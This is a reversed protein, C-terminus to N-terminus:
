WWTLAPFVRYNTQVAVQRLFYSIGSNEVLRRAISLAYAVITIIIPILVTITTNENNAEFAKDETNGSPLNKINAFIIPQFNFQLEYTIKGQQNIGASANVNFSKLVVNSFANGNAPNQGPAEFETFKVADVFQNVISLAAANGKIDMSNQDFDVNVDSITAKDPTAQTLYDFLRSSIVKQDHLQPLSALQNQITLIKDLDPKQKLQDTATNIDKTLAGIYHKQSFRVYVFLAVFLVLFFGSILASLGIVLRKQKRAKIYQLKVDPLLNLQAM